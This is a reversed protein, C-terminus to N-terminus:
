FVGAFPHVCHQLWMVSSKGSRGWSSGQESRSYPHLVLCVAQSLLVERRVGEAACTGIAKCDSAALEPNSLHHFHVQLEKNVEVMANLIPQPLPM